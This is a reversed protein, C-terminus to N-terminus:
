VHRKLPNIPPLDDRKLEVWVKDIIVQLLLLDIILVHPLNQVLSVLDFISRFFSLVLLLGLIDFASPLIDYLFVNRLSVPHVLLEFGILLIIILFEGLIAEFLDSFSSYPRLPHGLLRYHSGPLESFLHSM